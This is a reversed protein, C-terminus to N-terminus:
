ATAPRQEQVPVEVRDRARAHLRRELRADLIAAQVAAAGVVHLTGESSEHDRHGFRRLQPAVDDQRGDGVLLERGFSRFGHEFTDSGVGREDGFRGLQPDCNRMTAEDAELDLRGAHGRM